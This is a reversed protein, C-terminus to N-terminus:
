DNAKLDIKVKFSRTRHGDAELTEVIDELATGRKKARLYAKKVAPASLNVNRGIVEFIQEWTRDTDRRLVTVWIFCMGDDLHQQIMQESRAHRGPKKPTKVQEILLKQAWGPLACKNQECFTIVDNIPEDRYLEHLFRLRDLQQRAQESLKPV